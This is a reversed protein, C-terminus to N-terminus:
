FPKVVALIVIGLLVLVPAENLIRYFKDSRTNEDRAFQKLLKLLYFHYAYLGVLLTLKAHLWGSHKLWDLGYTVILAVGFFLTLFAFPTVFLWLRREMIKFQDRVAQDTTQAHYVFLRPLYFIGAMWAVMFFIHLAKLWLITM